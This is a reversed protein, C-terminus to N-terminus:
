EEKEQQLAIIKHAFVLFDASESEDSERDSECSDSEDDYCGIGPLRGICQITPPYNTTLRTESTKEPEVEPIKLDSQNNNSEEFIKLKKRPTDEDSKRKVNVGSMLAAQSKKNTASLSSPSKQQKKKYSEFLEKKFNSLKQEQEQANLNCVGQKYEELALLEERYKQNEIEARSNDCAQLFEIEDNDLGKILNKMKKSEEYEEQKKQKQERLREFLTRPDYPEEPAIPDDEKRNKEWEEQRKKRKEEIQGESIFSINQSM